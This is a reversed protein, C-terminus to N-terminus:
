DGVYDLEHACAIVRRLKAFCTNIYPRSLDDAILQDISARFAHRTLKDVQCRGVHAELKVLVSRISRHESTPSGDRHRYYTRAHRMYHTALERFTLRPM